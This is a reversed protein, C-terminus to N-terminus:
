KLPLIEYTYSISATAMLIKAVSCYKDFTLQLAKEVKNPDLNGFLRFHIQISEFIAPVENEKREAKIDIAIDQLDAKQKHLINVMDIGSCGGLGALLSEMPRFGMGAGGISPHADMSLLNGSANEAEFHYFQNKRTIHIEM